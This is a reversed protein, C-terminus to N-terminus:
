ARGAVHKRSHSQHRPLQSVETDSFKLSQDNIHKYRATSIQKALIMHVIEDVNSKHRSIKVTEMHLSGSPFTEQSSPIKAELPLKRISCLDKFIDDRM